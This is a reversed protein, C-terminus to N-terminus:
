AETWRSKNVKHQQVTFHGLPTSLKCSEMHRGSFRLFSVSVFVLVVVVSCRPPDGVRANASVRHRSCSITTFCPVSCSIRSTSRNRLTGPPRSIA